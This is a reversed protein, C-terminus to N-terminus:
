HSSAEGKCKAVFTRMNENALPSRRALDEILLARWQKLCAREIPEDPLYKYTITVDAYATQQEGAWADNPITVELNRLGTWTVALPKEAGLALDDMGFVTAASPTWAAEENPRTIEVTDTVTTVFAGHSCVNYYFTAVWADDPSAAQVLRNRQECGSTDFLLTHTNRVAPGIGILLGVAVLALAPRIMTM